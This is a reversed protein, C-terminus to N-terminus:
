RKIARYMSVFFARRRSGPSGVMTRTLANSAVRQYTRAASERKRMRQIYDADHIAAAIPAEALVSDINNRPGLLVRDMLGVMLSGTRDWTFHDGRDCLERVLRSALDPESLIREVITATAPVDFADITPIVSPL